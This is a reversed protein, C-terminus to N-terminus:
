WNSLPARIEHSASFPGRIPINNGGPQVLREYIVRQTQGLEPTTDGGSAPERNDLQKDAFLRVLDHLRYRGNEPRWEVLSYARLTSLTQEAVPQDLAWVAAAAQSDFTDPFIALMYWYQQLDVPLLDVSLRLSAPVGTRQLGEPTALLRQIYANSDLDEREALTSATLRLALPLAGCLAALAEAHDGIRPVITRLLDCADELPFVDLRKAYLGPLTFHYRPTVLLICSPPPMLPAVQEASAANDMLLIARQHYLVSQYLGSLEAEREPLATQPYLSRIVYAMAESPSLPQTSMGKLDLYLQADPYDPVLREALKLALTTKGIGGMGSLGLLATEGEKFADILETLETHRGTFDRPIPPLQHRAPLPPPSPHWTRSNPLHPVQRVRNRPTSTWHREAISTQWLATAM